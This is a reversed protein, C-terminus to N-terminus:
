APLGCVFERVRDAYREWTFERARTTANRGLEALHERNTVCWDLHEVIPAAAGAPIIFGDVQPRIVDPACSNESAIVPMGSAMAELIVFGFGEYLSPVVLVDHTHFVRVLADGELPGLEQFLHRFPETLHADGVSPGVLSLSIGRAGLIRMAELLHHLGKHRTLKGVFLVRLPGDAGRERFTFRDVDVGLPIIRIRDRPVASAELCKASFSSAAVSYDALGEVHERERSENTSMLSYESRPGDRSEADWATLARGISGPISSYEEITTMGLERAALVSLKCSGQFGWFISAKLDPLLASVLRDFDRDRTHVLEAVHPGNGRFLRHAVEAVEFKPFRLVRSSDLGPQHRRSLWTDLFPLLIALRDPFSDRKYYASTLFARLAGARELAVATRYAHQKGSHSLVVDHPATAGVRSRKMAAVAGLEGRASERM